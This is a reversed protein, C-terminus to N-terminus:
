AGTHDMYSLYKATAPQLVHRGMLPLGTSLAVEERNGGGNLPLRGGPLSLRTIHQLVRAM